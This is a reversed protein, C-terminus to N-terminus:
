NKRLMHKFHDPSAQADTLYLRLESYHMLNRTNKKCLPDPFLKQIKQKEYKQAFNKAIFSFFTM